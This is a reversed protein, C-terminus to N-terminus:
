FTRKNTVLNFRTQSVSGALPPRVRRWAMDGNYNSESITSDVIEDFFRGPAEYYQGLLTGNTAEWM